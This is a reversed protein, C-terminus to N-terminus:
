VNCIEPRTHCAQSSCGQWSAANMKEYTEKTQTTDKEAMERFAQPADTKPFGAPKTATTETNMDMLYEYNPRKRNVVEPRSARLTPGIDGSQLQRLSKRRELM